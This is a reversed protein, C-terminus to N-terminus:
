TVKSFVSKKKLEIAIGYPVCFALSSDELASTVAVARNLEGPSCRDGGAACGM